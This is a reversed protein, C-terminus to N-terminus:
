IKLKKRVLEARKVLQEANSLEKKFAMQMHSPQILLLLESLVAVPIDSYLNMEMGLRLTSLLELAEEFGLMRCHGLVGKARFVKDELLLKEEKRLKQRAENEREIIQRVVGQLHQIIEEETRGLTIQNSVQFYASRLETGEGYLGRVALGMHLIAQMVQAIGRTLVLAPLHLMVSARLGTGVNTPCATLFGFEPHKALNLKQQLQEDYAQAQQLAAELALGAQIVQVRLHDEENILLSLMQGPGVAVAIQDPERYTEMSILGREALMGRYFPKENKLRILELTQSKSKQILVSEIQKIVKIKEDEDAAIPFRAETLNRALRIRTSIVIPEAPKNKKLWAPLATLNAM